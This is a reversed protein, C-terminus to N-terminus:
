VIDWYCSACYQHLILIKKIKQLMLGGVCTILWLGGEEMLYQNDKMAVEQAKNSM